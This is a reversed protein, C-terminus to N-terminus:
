GDRRRPPATLRVSHLAPLHQTMAGAARVFQSNLMRERTYYEQTPLGEPLLQLM